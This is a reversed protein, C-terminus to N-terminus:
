CCFKPGCEHRFCQLAEITKPLVLNLGKELPVSMRQDMKTPVQWIKKSYIWGKQVLGHIGM